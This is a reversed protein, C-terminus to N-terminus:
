HNKLEPYFFRLVYVIDINDPDPKTSVLDFLYMRKNTQIALNTRINDELPKIFLRRDQPTLKWAYSDGLSLTQIEEGEAFEIISQYGYQVVMKYVHNENYIHTKIRVDTTIQQDAFVERKHNDPSLAFDEAMAQNIVLFSLCSLLLQYYRFIKM